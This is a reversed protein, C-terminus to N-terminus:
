KYIAQKMSFKCLFYVKNNNNIKLLFQNSFNGDEPMHPAYGQNLASNQTDLQTRTNNTHIREEIEM